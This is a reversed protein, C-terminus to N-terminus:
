TEIVTVKGTDGDVEILAGDPIRRTADTLSVVCPIGLERSVIIAHSLPAGVDVVVAGAGVFLPTWSPDTIPAVLIDGPGLATPDHPDLVVRARGQATGPCGPIGQLVAGALELEVKAEDRRRYTSMPAPEGVFLFPEQLGKVEDYLAERSELRERWGTPEDVLGYAESRTLMGYSEIRPFAGREHCRRGWERLAVRLEHILKICNTKTRERGPVFVGAASVAAGFQAQIAPDGSLREAMSSALAERNAVLVAHHEHPSAGPPSVRMRDIAALALDPHTEWTPSRTEWENPGRSGFRLGFEDFAAVWAQVEEQGSARLRSDLGRHGQDFYRTLASSSAVERGLDWMAMSPAASEVDGLGAILRLVASPDGVATAVKTVVTLPLSALFTVLIHEAFLERFHTTTLGWGHDLLERDSMATLDPREARLRNVMAEHEAARTLETASFVWEFTEGIRATLDPRDDGPRAEFAPVGPADGFFADDIDQATMDPARHGLIRLASANLYCYGGAVGLFVCEDGPLEDPEFAGIRYFADRFGLEAGGLGDANQFGFSFTAPAVPDPFVEGVNARTYFPYRDSLATRVLWADAM